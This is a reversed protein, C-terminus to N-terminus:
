KSVEFVTKVETILLQLLIVYIADLPVLDIAQVDNVKEKLELGDGFLRPCEKSVKQLAKGHLNFEYYKLFQEAIDFGGQIVIFFFGKHALFM